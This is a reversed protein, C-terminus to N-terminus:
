RGCSMSACLARWSEEGWYDFGADALLTNLNRYSPHVDSKPLEDSAVFLPRRREIRISLAM